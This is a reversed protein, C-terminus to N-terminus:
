SRSNEGAYQYKRIETKGSKSDVTVLCIFAASGGECTAPALCSHIENFKTRSRVKGTEQDLVRLEGLSGESWGSAWTCLWDGDVKAWGM